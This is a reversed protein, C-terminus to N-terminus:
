VLSLMGELSSILNYVQTRIYPTINTDNGIDELESIARNIKLTIEDETKLVGITEQIRMKLSKPVSSDDGITGLFNVIENLQNQPAM